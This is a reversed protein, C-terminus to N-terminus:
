NFIKEIPYFIGYKNIYFLQDVILILEVRYGKVWMSSNPFVNSPYLEVKKLGKKALAIVQSKTLKEM